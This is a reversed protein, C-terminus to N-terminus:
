FRLSLGFNGEFIRTEEGDLDTTYDATAFLSLRDNLDAVLGGGVELATGELETM